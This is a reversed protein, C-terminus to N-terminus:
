RTELSVHAFHATVSSTLLLITNILPLGYWGMGTTTTGDPTKILPWTATFEPWLVEGTMVNNGAGDLGLCPSRELM